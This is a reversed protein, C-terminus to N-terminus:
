QYLAAHHIFRLIIKSFHFFDSLFSVYQSNGQPVTPQPDPTTGTITHTQDRAQSSGCAMPAVFFFFFFDHRLKYLVKSCVHLDATVSPLHISAQCHPHYSLTPLVLHFILPAKLHLEQWPETTVFRVPIASSVPKNGPRAWHILSGVNGHVTTYTTSMAQIQCQQPQPM